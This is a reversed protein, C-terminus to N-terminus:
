EGKLVISLQGTKEVYVAEVDDLRENHKKLRLDGLIDSQSIGTIRMAKHDFKGEKYLLRKRGKLIDEAKPSIVTIYALTRHVLVVVLSGAVCTFFPTAGIIGRSLIGGILFTTILDFNNGRGFTRVGSIRLLVLAIIFIVLARLGCNVPSLHEDVGWIQTLEEM